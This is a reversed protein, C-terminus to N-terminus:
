ICIESEASRPNPKLNLMELLNGPADWSAAPVCVVIHAPFDSLVSVVSGLRPSHTSTLWPLLFNSTPHTEHGLYLLSSTSPEPLGLHKLKAQTSLTHALPLTSYLNFPVPVWTHEAYYKSKM